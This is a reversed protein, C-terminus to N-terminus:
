FHFSSSALKHLLVHVFGSFFLFCCSRERFAACFSSFTAEPRELCEWCANFFLSVFVLEWCLLFFRGDVAHVDVVKILSPETQSYCPKREEEPATQGFLSELTSSWVSPHSVKLLGPGTFLRVISQFLHTKEEGAGGKRVCHQSQSDAEPETLYSGSRNQPQPAPSADPGLPNFHAM